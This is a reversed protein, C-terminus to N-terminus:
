KNSANNTGGERAPSKPQSANENGNTQVGKNLERRAAEVDNAYNSTPQASSDGGTTEYAVGPRPMYLSRDTVEVDARSWITALMLITGMLALLLGPSASTLSVKVVSSEASMHSETERMKGLIFTAGVMALVMGTIFGLYVIYVRGMIIVSAQHYRNQLAHGELLAQTKFRAYELKMAPDTKDDGQLISLAPELNLEGSQQIRNNIVYMQVVNSVCFFATLVVLMGVMLPLLKTQWTRLGAAKTALPAPLRESIEEM